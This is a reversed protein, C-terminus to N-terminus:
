FWPNWSPSIKSLEEDNKSENIMDIINNFPHVDENDRCCIKKLEKTIKEILENLCIINKNM